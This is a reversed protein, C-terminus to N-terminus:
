ATYNVSYWVHFSYHYEHQTIETEEVSSSIIIIVHEKNHRLNCLIWRPFRNMSSEDIMM